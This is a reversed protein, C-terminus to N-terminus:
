IYLITDVQLFPLELYLFLRYELEALKEILYLTAPQPLQFEMLGSFLGKLLHEMGYGEVFIM